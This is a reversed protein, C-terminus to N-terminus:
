KSFRNIIDEVTNEAIFKTYKRIKHAYKAYVEEPLPEEDYKMAPNHTFISFKEGNIVLFVEIINDSPNGPPTYEGYLVVDSDKNFREELWIM